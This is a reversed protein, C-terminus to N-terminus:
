LIFPPTPTVGGGTEGAMVLLKQILKHFKILGAGLM